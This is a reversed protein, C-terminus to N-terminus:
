KTIEKDNINLTLPLDKDQILIYFKDDDKVSIEKSLQKCVGKEECLMKMNPKNVIVIEWWAKNGKCFCLCTEWNSCKSPKEGDVPWAVIRWPNGPNYVDFSTAGANIEEVLRNLTAEAFELDENGKNKFYLATLFYILFGICIVAIVIKLTEEALLFGKRNM